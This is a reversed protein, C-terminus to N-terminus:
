TRAKPPAKPMPISVELTPLTLSRYMIDLLYYQLYACVVLLLWMGKRAIGWGRTKKQQLAIQREVEQDIYARIEEMSHFQLEDSM